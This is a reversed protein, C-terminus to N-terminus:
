YVQLYELSPNSKLTISPPKQQKLQELQKCINQVLDAFCPRDESQFNWCSKMIKYRFDSVYDNPEIFIHSNM